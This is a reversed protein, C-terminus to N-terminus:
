KEACDRPWGQPRGGEEAGDFWGPALQQQLVVFLRVEQRWPEVRWALQRDEGCAIKVDGEGEAERVAEREQRETAQRAHSGGKSPCLGQLSFPRTPFRSEPARAPRRLRQARARSRHRGQRDRPAGRRDASPSARRTRHFSA